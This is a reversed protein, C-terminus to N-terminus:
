NLIIAGEKLEIGKLKDIGRPFSYSMVRITQTIFFACFSILALVAFPEPAVPEGFITLIIAIVLNGFTLCQCAINYIKYGRPNPLQRFAMISLMIWSILSTSITMLVCVRAATKIQNYTNALDENIYQRVDLVYALRSYVLSGVLAVITIGVFVLTIIRNRKFTREDFSGHTCHSNRTTNIQQISPFVFFILPLIPAIWKTWSKFAWSNFCLINGNVLLSLGSIMELIIPFALILMAIVLTVRYSRPSAEETPQQRLMFLWVIGAILMIVRWYTPPFLYVMGCIFVDPFSSIPTCVLAIFIGITLYRFPKSASMIPRQKYLAICAIILCLPLVDFAIRTRIDPWLDYCYATPYAAYLISRAVFYITFGIMGIAAILTTTKFSFKM